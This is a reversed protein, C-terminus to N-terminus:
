EEVIRIELNCIDGRTEAKFDSIEGLRLGKFGSAATFCMLCMPCTSFGIGKGFGSLPLWMCDTIKAKLINGSWNAEFAEADAINGTRIGDRFIKIFEEKNSASKNENEQAAMSSLMPALIAASQRAILTPKVGIKDLAGMLSGITIAAYLPNMERM